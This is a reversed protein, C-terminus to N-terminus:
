EKILHKRAAIAVLGALLLLTTSPEPVSTDPEPHPTPTPEIPNDPVLPPPAGPSRPFSSDDSGSHLFSFWAGALAPAYGWGSASGPANSATLIDQSASAAAPIPMSAPLVDGTDPSDVPDANVVEIPAPDASPAEMAIPPISARGEIIDNGCKMTWHVGIESHLAMNRVGFTFSLGKDTLVVEADDVAEGYGGRWAQQARYKSVYPLASTMIIEPYKLKYVKKNEFSVVYDWGESTEFTDKNYPPTGSVKWGQSSIYLDGPPADRTRKLNHVYNFFYPGTIKITAVDNNIIVEMQDIASRRGIVDAYGSPKINVYKGGWYIADGARDHITVAEAGRITLLVVALLCVVSFLIKRYM